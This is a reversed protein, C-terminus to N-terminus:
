LQYCHVYSFCCLPLFYQMYNRISNNWLYQVGIKVHGESWKMESWKVESWKVESWKVEGGVLELSSSVNTDFRKCVGDFSLLM